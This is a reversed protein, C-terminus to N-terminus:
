RCFVSVRLVRLCCPSFLSIKEMNSRTRRTETNQLKPSVWGLAPLINRYVWECGTKGGRPAEHGDSEVHVALGAREVAIGGHGQEPIEPVFQPEGAGLEATPNRGAAGTGDVDVTLCQLAADGGHGRQGPFLHGCDFTQM